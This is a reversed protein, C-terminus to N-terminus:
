LVGGSRGVGTRCIGDASHGNIRGRRRVVGRGSITVEVEAGAAAPRFEDGIGFAIQVRGYSLGLRDRRVRDVGTWHMGLHTLDTGAGTGFAAHGELGFVDGGVGSRVGLDGVEGAPQPDGGEQGQRHEGKLHARVKRAQAQRNRVSPVPPDLEGQGGRHHQPCAPREDLAAPGRHPRPVQVHEGQDAKPRQDGPREARDGHDRGAQDRDIEPALVALRRQIELRRRHDDGQDEDALQQLQSGALAGRPGDPGKHIEGRFLGEPDAVVPGVLLNRDLVDADAVM